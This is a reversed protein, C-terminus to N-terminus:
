PALKVLNIAAHRVRNVVDSDDAPPCPRALVAALAAQALRVDRPEIRAPFTGASECRRIATAREAHLSKGAGRKCSFNKLAPNKFFYPPASIM